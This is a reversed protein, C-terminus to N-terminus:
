QVPTPAATGPAEAPSAPAPVAPVSQAKTAPRPGSQPPLPTTAPPTQAPNEGQAAERRTREDLRQLREREARSQEESPIFLPGKQGCAQLMAALVLIVPLHRM